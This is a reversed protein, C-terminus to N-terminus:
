NTDQESMLDTIQSTLKCPLTKIESMKTRTKNLFLQKYGRADYVTKTWFIYGKKLIHGKSGLRLM